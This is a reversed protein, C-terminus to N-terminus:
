SRSAGHCDKGAAKGFMKPSPAVQSEPFANAADIIEEESFILGRLSTDSHSHKSNFEHNTTSQLRRGKETRGYTRKAFKTKKKECAFSNKRTEQAISNRKQNSCNTPAVHKTMKIQHTVEVSSHPNSFLPLASAAKM